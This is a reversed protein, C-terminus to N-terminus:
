DHRWELVQCGKDGTIAVDEVTADEFSKRFGVFTAHLERDARRHRRLQGGPPPDDLECFRERGAFLPAWENGM